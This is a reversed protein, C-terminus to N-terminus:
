LVARGNLRNAKRVGNVHLLEPHVAQVTVVGRVFRHVRAQGRDGRTHATVGHDPGIAGGVLGEEGVVERALEAARINLERVRGAHPGDALRASNAGFSCTLAFESGAQASASKDNM